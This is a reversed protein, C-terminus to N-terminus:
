FCADIGFNGRYAWDHLAPSNRLIVPAYDQGDYEDPRINLEAWIHTAGLDSRRDRPRCPMDEFRIKPPDVLCRKGDIEWFLVGKPDAVHWITLFHGGEDMEESSEELEQYPLVLFVCLVGQTTCLLDLANQAFAKMQHPYPLPNIDLSCNMRASHIDPGNAFKRWLQDKTMAPGGAADPFVEIPLKGTRYSGDPRRVQGYYYTTRKQTQSLSFVPSFVTGQQQQECTVYWQKQFDETDFCISVHSDINCTGQM